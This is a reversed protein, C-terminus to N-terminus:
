MGDSPVRIIKAGLSAYPTDNCTAIVIQCHNAAEELIGCLRRMRVTDANVLRDDIVVLNRNESSVVVGIALRLLVIVQEQMGYSLSNVPMESGYVPVSVSSPKLTDDLVLSNYGGDTLFAIWPNVIKGIPASLAQSRRRESEDALSKLLKVAEARRQLVQQRSKAEELGTEVIEARDYNGSNVAEDILASKASIENDILNMQERLKEILSELESYMKRPRVVNEEYGGLLNALEASKEAFRSEAESVLRSLNDATGYIELISDLDNEDRQRGAMLESQRNTLSMLKGQSEEFRRTEKKEAGQKIGIESILRDKERGKQEILERILTGKREEPQLPFHSAALREEEIGRIVRALEAEAEPNSSTLEELSNQAAEISKEMERGKEHLSLFDERSSVGLKLLLESLDNHLTKSQKTLERLEEADSRIVITGIGQVMFETPERVLFENSKLNKAPPVTVIKKEKSQWRFLVRIATAEIKSDTSLLKDHIKNLRSLEANTPFLRSLRETKLHEIEAEKAKLKKIHNELQERQKELTRLNRASQLASLEQEVRKLAPLLENQIQFEHRESSEHATEMESRLLSISKELSNMERTFERIEKQYGSVLSINRRLEDLNRKTGEVDRELQSKSKEFSEAAEIKGSLSKMEACATERERSKESKRGQLYELDQRYVAIKRDIAQIGSFEETLRSVAAKIEGLEGKQLELGTPTWYKRYETELKDLFNEEADSRVAIRVLGQIGQRVSENWTGQPIAGDSQLYWLAQAIGRNEARAATRLSSEGGLISRVSSDAQDDKHDLEWHGNREVHLESMPDQLFRKHIRYRTSGASFVMWAEPGLSSGIPQISRIEETRSNHRDFLLRTLVEFLTSKGAENRGVLLNIGSSFGFKHTERYGRWNCVTM